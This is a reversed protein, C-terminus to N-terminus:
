FKIQQSPPIEQPKDPSPKIPSTDPIEPLYDASNKM